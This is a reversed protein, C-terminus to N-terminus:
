FIFYVSESVNSEISIILKEYESVGLGFYIYWCASFVHIWSAFQSLITLVAFSLYNAELNTFNINNAM